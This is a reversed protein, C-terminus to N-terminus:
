AFGFPRASVVAGAAGIARRFAFIRGAVVRTESV